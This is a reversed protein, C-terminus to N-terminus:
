RRDYRNKLHDNIRNFYTLMKTSIRSKLMASINIMIQSKSM